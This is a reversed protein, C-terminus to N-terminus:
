GKPQECAASKEPIPPAIVGINWNWAIDAKRRRCMLEEQLAYAANLVLRAAKPTDQVILFEGQSGYRPWPSAGKATPTGTRAFSAWYDGMAQTLATEAASEPAKPWLAPTRDMTGFVYPIEAAHFGHLGAVDARPYGHDFVYLYSPLGLGAQKAVLRQATWGYMGDRTTALMSEKINSSPYLKLFADALDGYGTRIAREYDAQSAPAPPLLITLSRIEGSNFGALMPVHAQEGKDFVDVLQGPLVKGDVAGFPFFGAPGAADTLAEADMARLGAIDTAKLKATLYTGVDEAAPMGFAKRKLEPTTIMYASEAIAKHFLGHADPAAMLYMVSLGGASEGAITVNDPDGGFASINRKVWRLAEIQDLLGYNGSVGRSSEASLQPHALWGLVGLRYNISVVVLGRGSLKAGDYMTEASAGNTLAGGHIWVFVPLKKAGKPAWVNLSLCDESMPPLPSSYITGGRSKPQWCPPGFATAERVGEWRPAPKPPTWRAAGVPPAAYPIGKFVLLDGQARGKLVGAPTELTAPDAARAAPAAGALCAIAAVCLSFHHLWTTM